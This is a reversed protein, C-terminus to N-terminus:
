SNACPRFTGHGSAHALRSFKQTAEANGCVYAADDGQFTFDPSFEVLLEDGPADSGFISTPAHRDTAFEYYSPISLDPAAKRESAAM